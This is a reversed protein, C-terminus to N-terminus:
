SFLFFVRKLDLFFYSELFFFSFVGVVLSVITEKSVVLFFNGGRFGSLYYLYFTIFHGRCIVKGTRRIHCDSRQRRDSRPASTLDKVPQSTAIPSLLPRYHVYYERICFIQKQLTKHLKLHKYVARHTSSSSLQGVVLVTENVSVAGVLGELGGEEM